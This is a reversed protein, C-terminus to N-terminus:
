DRLQGNTYASFANARAKKSLPAFEEKNPTPTSTATFVERPIEAYGNYYSNCWVYWIAEKMKTNSHLRGCEEPVYPAAFQLLKECNVNTYDNGDTGSSTFDMYMIREIGNAVAIAANSIFEADDKYPSREGSLVSEARDTIVEVLNSRTTKVTPVIIQNRIKEADDAADPLVDSNRQALVKEYSCRYGVQKQNDAEIRTDTKRKRSDRRDKRHRSLMEQLEEDQVTLLDDHATTADAFAQNATLVVTTQSTEATTAVQLRNGSSTLEKDLDDELDDQAPTTFLRNNSERHLLEIEAKSPTRNHDPLVM